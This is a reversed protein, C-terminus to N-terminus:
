RTSKSGLDPSRILAEIESVLRSLDSSADAPLWVSAVTVSLEWLNMQTDRSLNEELRRTLAAVNQEDIGVLLHQVGEEADLELNPLLQDSLPYFLLGELLHRLRRRQPQELPRPHSEARRTLAVRVLAVGECSRSDGGGSQRESPALARRVLTALDFVPLTFHFTSGAGLKSEAWIRGGMQHVLSHCIALGIGLGERSSAHQNAEQRFQEFIADLSEEAIGCGSDAVSCRVFGPDDSDVRASVVISGGAPTFKRANGLLNQLVQRVRSEDALVTPLAPAIETEISLGGADLAERATEAVDAVLASIRFRRPEVRLKGTQSRAADLLDGIMEQLQNTSKFALELYQRQEAPGGIEDIMLSLFQHLATLPTRLEHSIHRLLEDKLEIQERRTAELAALIRQREIAYSLARPLMSAYLEGKVIYDQAGLKLARIATDRDDNSTMVVIPTKAVAERMREVTELGSFDPLMLDLLIADYSRERARELAEGLDPAVCTRYVGRGQSKLVALALQAHDPDDEVVLVDIPEPAETPNAVVPEM